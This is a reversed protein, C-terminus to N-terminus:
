FSRGEAVRVGVEVEAMFDFSELVDEASEM